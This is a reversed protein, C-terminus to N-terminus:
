IVGENVLNVGLQFSSGPGSGPLATKLRIEAPQSIGDMCIGDGHNDRSRIFRGASVGSRVPFVSVM